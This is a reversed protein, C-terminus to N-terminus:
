VGCGHGLPERHRPEERVGPNGAVGRRGAAPHVAELGRPQHARRQGVARARGAPQERHGDEVPRHGAEAQRLVFTKDLRRQDKSPPAIMPRRGNSIEILSQRNSRSGYGTPSGWVPHALGTFEGRMWMFQQANREAKEEDDSVHCQLLQGFHQPGATIGAEAASDSYLQKIKDSVDFNTNLGIYPYGQKAAWMVTEKSAVGPIWIPPHPQQLPTAWPNVVRYDFHKGEWRFPGERTWAAMLLDHAEEFRERNFGPNTNAQINEVGGGRVFGSVLRGGSVMDIISLEEALHVPNDNVPLPNGLLVIKANKTKVALMAAFLNIRPSMCFPATHHENLMIGDFGMQDALEYEEMREKYLRSGEESSFYKNSFLLATVKQTKGGGVPIEDTAAEEPYASMPQETFYLIEMVTSRLRRGPTAIAERHPLTRRSTGAGGRARLGPHGRAASGAPRRRLRESCERPVIRDDDGHVITAPVRVSALLRELSPDYLYPKWAIRGLMERDTEWAELQEFPAEETYVRDFAARNHFCRQAYHESGVLFQDYIAGQSPRIGMPAALVMQRFLSPNACAMEAAVWGGYGLGVVTLDSLGLDRMTASLVLSLDRTDRLWSWDDPNGNHFGPLWPAYVRWDTALMDLFADEPPYGNDHPLFLLPPGEGKVRYRLTSDGLQVEGEQWGDDRVM